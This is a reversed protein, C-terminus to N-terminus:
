IGGLYLKRLEKIYEIRHANDPRDLALPIQLGELIDYKPKYCTNNMEDILDLIANYNEVYESVPANSEFLITFDTDLIDQCEELYLSPYKDAYKKFIDRIEIEKKKEEVLYAIYSSSTYSDYDYSGYQHSLQIAYYLSDPLNNRCFEKFIHNNITYTNPTGTHLDYAVVPNFMNNDYLSKSYELFVTVTDKSYGKGYYSHEGWEIITDILTEVDIINKMIIKARSDFLFYSYDLKGFSPKDVIYKGNDAKFKFWDLDSYYFSSSQISTFKSTANYHLNEMGSNDLYLSDLEGSLSIKDCNSDIIKLVGGEMYYRNIKIDLDEVRADKFVLTLGSNSRIDLSTEKLISYIFTTSDFQVNDFAVKNLEGEYFSVNKLTVNTFRSNNLNVDNIEVDSFTVGSFSAYTFNAEKLIEDLTEQALNSKLLNIFLQGREPSYDKETLQGNELFRYPQLRQSLSIIRAALQPSINRISDGLYDEKLEKDLLDMINSFLFVLTSRRDAEQLYTQQDIRVIEKEILGNQKEILENQNKIFVSGLIGGLLVFLTQFVIFYISRTERLVLYRSVRQIISQTGQTVQAKNSSLVGNVLTEINETIDSQGEKLKGFLYNLILEKNLYVFRGLAIFIVILFIFFLFIQEIRTEIIDQGILIVLSAFIAGIFFYLISKLKGHM